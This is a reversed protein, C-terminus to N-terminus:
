PDLLAFRELVSDIGCFVVQEVEAVFVVSHPQDFMGDTVAFSLCHLEVFTVRARCIYTVVTVGEVNDM